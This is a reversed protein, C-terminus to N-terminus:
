LQYVRLNIFQWLKQIAMVIKFNLMIEFSKSWTQEYVKKSDTCLLSYTLKQSFNLIFVTFTIRDVIVTSRSRDTRRKVLKHYGDFM